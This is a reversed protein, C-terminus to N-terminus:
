EGDHDVDNEDSARHDHDGNRAQSFDGPSDWILGFSQM